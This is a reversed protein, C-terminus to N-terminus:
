RPFNEAEIHLTKEVQDRAKSAKFHTRRMKEGLESKQQYLGTNRGWIGDLWLQYGCSSQKGSKLYGHSTQHTIQGSLDIEM